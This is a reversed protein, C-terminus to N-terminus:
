NRRKKWNGTLNLKRKGIFQATHKSTRKLKMKKSPLSMQIAVKRLLNGKRKLM